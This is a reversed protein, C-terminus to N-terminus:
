RAYQITIKSQFTEGNLGKAEVTVINDVVQGKIGLLVFPSTKWVWEQPAQPDRNFTEFGLNHTGYPDAFLTALATSEDIETEPLNDVQTALQDADESQRVRDPSGAVDILVQKGQPGIDGLLLANLTLNNVTNRLSQGAAIGAATGEPISFNGNGTTTPEGDSIFYVTKKGYVNELMTQTARFAAGYNTLGGVDSQIGGPNQPDLGFRQPTDVVYQCFNQATVKDRFSAMDELYIVKNTVIGGAFPVMGLRVNTYGDLSAIIKEAARLRGCSGNVQPDNGNPDAKSNPGLIHRGMSGSYDVVFLVTTKGETSKPCFRGSVTTVVEPDDTTEVPDGKPTDGHDGKDESSDDSGDPDSGKDGKTSDDESQNSDGGKPNGGKDIEKGEGLFALASKGQAKDSDDAEPGVEIVVGESNICELEIKQEILEGQGKTPLPGNGDPNQGGSGQSIDIPEKVPITPGDPQKDQTAPQSKRKEKGTFSNENCSQNLALCVLAPLLLAIHKM